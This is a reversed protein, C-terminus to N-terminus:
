KKTVKIVLGCCERCHLHNTGSKSGGCNCQNDRDGSMYTDIKIKGICDCEHAMVVRKKM